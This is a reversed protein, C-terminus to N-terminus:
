VNSFAENHILTGNPYWFEIILETDDVINVITYGPKIPPAVAVSGVGISFYPDRMYISMPHIHGGFFGDINYNETLYLSFQYVEENLDVSFTATPDDWSPVGMPYHSALLVWDEPTRQSLEYEIWAIEEANMSSMGWEIDLLYVFINEALQVKHCYNSKYPNQILPAPDVYTRFNVYGNFLEDHNGITWRSPIHTGYEGFSTMCDIWDQNNSGINVSDGLNFYYNATNISSALCENLDPVFADFFTSFHADSFFAIKIGSTSATTFNFTQDFGTLKYFYQTEAKLNTLHFTHYKTNISDTLTQWQIQGNERYSCSLQDPRNSYYYVDIDPVGYIGIQDTLLLIPYPSSATLPPMYSLTMIFLPIFFGLALRKNQTFALVSSSLFHKRGYRLYFFLYAGLSLIPFLFILAVIGIGLLIWTDKMSFTYFVGLWNFFVIYLVIFSMVFTLIYAIITKYGSRKRTDTPIFDYIDMLDDFSPISM